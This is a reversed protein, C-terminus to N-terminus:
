RRLTRQPPEGDPYFILIVAENKGADQVRVVAKGNVFGVYEVTRASIRETVWRDISLNPDLMSVATTHSANTLHVIVKQIKAATDPSFSPGRRPSLPRPKKKSM